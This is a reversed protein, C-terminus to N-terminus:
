AERAEPSPSAVAEDEDVNAVMKVYYFTTLEGHIMKVEDNKESVFTADPDTSCSSAKSSISEKTGGTMLTTGKDGM